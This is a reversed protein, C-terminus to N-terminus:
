AAGGNGETFRHRSEWEEAWGCIRNVNQDMQEVSNSELEVVDEAYSERAEELVVQMIECEINESIKKTSYGRKELREYLVTNDTRLVVVLDFWRKGGDQMMRELADIVYSQFEDDFGEHLGTEKIIKGVEIYDLVAALAVLEATTTKGTGPTGTILINPRRRQM